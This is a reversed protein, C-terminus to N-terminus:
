VVIKTSWDSKHSKLFEKVEDLQEKNLISIPLFNAVTKSNYLIIWKSGIRRIKYFSNWKFENTFAEGTFSIMDDTLLYTLEQNLRQHINYNKVANRYISFLLYLITSIGVFLMLLPNRVLDAKFVHMYNFGVLVLLGFGLLISFMIAPKRITLVYFLRIFDKQEIKSTFQIHM